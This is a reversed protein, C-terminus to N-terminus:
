SSRWPIDQVGKFRVFGYRRGTFNRRNPIFIERVDGWKKFDYWLEKEIIDDAFRSFYFSTIDKHDRWNTVTHNLQARGTNGAYSRRSAAGFSVREQWISKGSLTERGQGTNRERRVRERRVRERSM